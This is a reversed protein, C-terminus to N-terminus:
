NEQTEHKFNPRHRAAIAALAKVTDLAREPIAAAPSAGPHEAAIRM